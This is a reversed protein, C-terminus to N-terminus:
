NFIKRIYEAAGIVNEAPDIEKPPATQKNLLFGSYYRQQKHM